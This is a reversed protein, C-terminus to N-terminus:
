REIQYNIAARNEAGSSGEVEFMRNIRYRVSFVEGGSILGIGYGVYLRPTLYRGFAFTGSRGTLVAFADTETALDPRSLHLEPKAATGTIRVTTSNDGFRQVATLSLSPNDLAGGSFLLRGREIDFNQGLAAYRGDVVLEGSGTAERGARQSVTLLGIVNGDFGFGQVKVDGGLVVEVKTRWDIRTAAAGPPDDIVVIDDSRRAGDELRSVDVRASPIVIKGGVRVRDGDYSVKLDPTVRLRAEPLNLVEVDLGGLELQLPREEAPDYGGLLRLTGGGSDVSGVIAVRDGDQALSLKGNSVAIGLGPVEGALGDVRGQTQYIAPAVGGRWDFDVRATGATANFQPVFEEIWEIDPFEASAVLHWPREPDAPHESLSAHVEGSPLLSADLRANGTGDRWAAVLALADFGVDIGDSRRDNWRGRESRLNADISPQAGPTWAIRAAGDAVGELGVGEPLDIFHAIAALPLADLQLQASGQAPSGESAVCLRGGAGAICLPGAALVGAGLRLPAPAELALPADAVPLADLAVLTGDWREGNWGGEARAALTAADRELEISARHREQTGQLLLRARDLAMGGHAVGTALLELDMAGRPGTAAVLEGRVSAASLGAVALGRAQVAARRPWGPEARDIEADLTLVGGWGPALDALDPADLRLVVAHDARADGQLSLRARGSRVTLTAFGPAGADLEIRGDANVARERLKGQLTQVQLTGTPAGAVLGSGRFAIAGDLRGSWAPALLAPDFAQAAVAVAGVAAEDRPVEGAATFSGRGFDLRLPRLAIADSGLAVTGGLRAAPLGPAGIDLAPEFLLEDGARLARLTGSLRTDPPAVPWPVTFAAFSATLDLAAPARARLAGVLQLEGAGASERLRLAEVRWDDGTRTLRADQLLWERELAGVRGDVRLAKGEGRAVLALSVPAAALMGPLDPLVQPPLDLKAEWSAWAQRPDTSASITAQWPARLALSATAVRRQRQGEIRGQLRRDGDRWDFELSGEPLWHELDLALTGGIRGDPGQADLAQLVLRPQQLAVRASAQALVLTSEGDSWQADRLTLPTLPISPWSSAASGAQATGPTAFTRVRLGEADIRAFGLVGGVLAGLRPVLSLRRIAVEVGDGQWRVDEVVVTGGLRGQAQGVRLGPVQDQVMGLVIRTGTPTALLFLALLGLLGLLLLLARLWRRASM